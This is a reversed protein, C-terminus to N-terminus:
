SRPPSHVGILITDEHAFGSHAVNGPILFYHGKELVGKEGGINVEFKGMLIYGAQENPHAHEPMSTGSKMLLQGFEIKEGKCFLKRRAGEIITESSKDKEHGFLM